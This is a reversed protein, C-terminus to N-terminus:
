WQARQVQLIQTTALPLQWQRQASKTHTMNPPCGTHPCICAHSAHTGTGNAASRRKGNHLHRRRPLANLQQPLVDLRQSGSLAVADLKCVSLFGPSNLTHTPRVPILHAYHPLALLSHPM